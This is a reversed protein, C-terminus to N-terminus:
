FYFESSNSSPFSFLPGKKYRKNQEFLIRKLMQTKDWHITHQICKWFIFVKVYWFVNSWVGKNSTKLVTSLRWHIRLNNLFMSLSTRFLKSYSFCSTHHLYLLHSLHTACINNVILITVLPLIARLVHVHVGYPSM